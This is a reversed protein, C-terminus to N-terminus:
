ELLHVFLGSLLKPEFWTSKPPMVKGADAVAMMQGLTPPYLAFAVAFGERDVLRELEGMGRIGGVFEIRPDTRPDGIGLIPGLVREQLLSVDLGAIPDDERLIGDRAKLGYWLGGLYMGFTHPVEPAKKAFGASVLFNEGTRKLFLEETLDGLDRVARNYDMIRLQDHSFLVGLMFHYAEGGSHLFTRERRLRAVTAAAAARHHGDAIYLADVGAFGEAVERILHRDDIVWVTHGVGDAATFDYEPQGAAVRAVLRDIVERRRYALMVPGTQAGVTDIHRTREREKDARTLEHRIIRGAEYEAVSVGAVIGTQIHGGMQQRYLYFAEEKEQFIVGERIMRNLNEKARDYIRPDDVGAADPLDIESKEVHLFSLPNNRVLERAEAVNVVDYPPAAVQAVFPKAPRLARFPIVLSMAAVEKGFRERKM